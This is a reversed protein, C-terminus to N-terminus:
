RVVLVPLPSHSVVEATQSGLLMRGLGRRGHSAMVILNCGYKGATEVIAEAPRANPVHVTDAVVGLTAAAESAKALTARAAEEQGSEYAAIDNGDPVWGVASASGYVPFPETVTLLTVKAGLAKALNLGHSVGKQALESGDTAVLLHTYM